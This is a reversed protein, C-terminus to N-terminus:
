LLLEFENDSTYVRDNENLLSNYDDDSVIEVCNLLTPREEMIEFLADKEPELLVQQGKICWEEFDEVNKLYFCLAISPDLQSFVMRSPNSCHYTSDDVQDRHTQTTHPDLFILENGVYGIFYSAHNTKGGIIGLSQKLTFVEKLKDFYVPMIESLGLRLPIALLVPNSNEQDGLSSSPSTKSEQASDKEKNFLKRIESKVVMNDMAVHIVIDNESDEETLRKLVQVVTNPGFWQGVQKELTCGKSAIKHISYQSEVNDNFQNLINKYTENMCNPKWIWDRGLYKVLLAQAMFMQGCRHMCGWGSDSTMNSDGIPSFQKRYTFWLRSKIDECLKDFGDDSHIEYKKGMLWVSDSVKKFDVFDTLSPEYTVCAAYIEEM